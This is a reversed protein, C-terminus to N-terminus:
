GAVRALAATLARVGAACDQPDAHEQPTNSVGTPNRVLLAASAIGAAALVAAASGTAPVLAPLEDPLDAEATVAATVEATLAEDLAVPPAYFQELVDFGAMRLEGIVGRLQAVGEARVDLWATVHAAVTTVAGPSVEVQGVTALADYRAATARVTQVLRALELVADSRGALPATGAHDARGEIEVRWWGHPHVSRVAGLPADVGALGYGQELGLGVFTSVRRVAAEDPGFTVPDLGAAALAEAYTVGHADRLGLVREPGVLGTLLRSGVSPMGFRAGEEDVFRVVALPRRPRVDRARLADVALLATVVGLPGHYGGAAPVSDLHGGTAVGRGPLDGADPDGWWAWQNGARDRVVDLGRATCSAEFWEGLAADQATWAPRTFGGCRRDRGIGALEGLLAQVGDRLGGQGDSVAAAGEQVHQM